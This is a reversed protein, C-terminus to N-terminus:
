LWEELGSERLRAVLQRLSDPDNRRAILTADPTHVILLDELGFTAILHNHDSSRIGCNRTAIGLHRADITNGSADQEMRRFVAEWSGMDDWQFPAALVLLEDAQELVGHDISISPLAPFHQEMAPNWGKERATTELEDLGRSLEPQYEAICALIRDARWCFIGCNWLWGQEVLEAALDSDPKERFETARSVHCAIDDSQESSAAQDDASFPLATGPRIYGFGTEPREPQCGFLLLSHPSAAIVQGAKQVAAQFAAPPTISHDAPLVLMVGDADAQRIRQAAVGICPATNRGCPEILFQSDALEPLQQRCGDHMAAGTVVWIREPPIGAPIRDVTQQLLTRKASATSQTVELALLQKPRSIRSEPWFRTGSGGAMIVAHLM